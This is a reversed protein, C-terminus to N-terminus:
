WDYSKEWHEVMEVLLDRPIGLSGDKHSNAWNPAAIPSLRLLTKLVDIQQDPVNITFPRLNASAAVPHPPKAFPISTM